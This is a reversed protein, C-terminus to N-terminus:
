IVQADITTEIRLIHKIITDSIISKQVRGIFADSSISEQFQSIFIIDFDVGGAKTREIIDRLYVEVGGIGRGGLFNQDLYSQDPSDLFLADEILQGGELRVQFYLNRNDFNDIIQVAHSTSFFYNLADIIAWKTTRHPNNQAIALAQFQELLLEDSEIENRRPLDIFRNVLLELREDQAIQIDFSQYIHQSVGRMYELENAVAGCNYDSSEEIVPNPTFDETGFLVQYDEGSKNIADSVGKNFIDILNRPM